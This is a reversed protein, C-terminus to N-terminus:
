GLQPVTVAHLCAPCFPGMGPAQAALLLLALEAPAM